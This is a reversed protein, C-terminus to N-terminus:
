RVMEPLTATEVWYQGFVTMVQVLEIEVHGFFPRGRPGQGDPRAGWVIQPMADALERFQREGDRLSQETLKCQTIDTHHGGV